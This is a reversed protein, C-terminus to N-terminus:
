WDLAEYNVGLDLVRVDLVSKQELLVAEAELQEAEKRLAEARDRLSKAGATQYHAFAEEVTTFVPDPLRAGSSECGGDGYAVHGLGNIERIYTARAVLEHRRFLAPGIRWFRDGSKIKNPDLKM